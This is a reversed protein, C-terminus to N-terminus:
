VKRVLQWTSASCMSNKRNSLVSLNGTEGASTEKGTICASRYGADKLRSHLELLPGNFQASFVVVQEGSEILQECKDFAEDIKSSSGVALHEMKGTLPDEIAIADPWTNIQRLRTLQAIIATATLAKKETAQKDLWVYFYDRLKNYAERQDPTMDLYIFERTLDPLQIKVEDRRRRITQGALLKIVKEADIQVIMKNEKNSWIPDGYQYEFKKVTPFKEPAFIHLYSWMEQPRNVMPTGSLFIMFKANRCLDKVASWIATPGNANAGGKLKHVEDIYVFDWQANAIMPTTRVAEYNAILMSNSMMAWQFATERLEVSGGSLPMMRRDPSWLMIERLNSSVLSKKTLWLVNPKRNHEQEFLACLIHDAVATEFTKGLGMDNANLIGNKGSKYADIIFLIDDHQFDRAKDWAGFGECIQRITQELEALAELQNRKSLLEAAAKSLDEIKGLNGALQQELKSVDVQVQYKRNQVEKLKELYAQRITEEEKNLETIAAKVQKAEDQIGDNAKRLQQLESNIQRLPDNDGGSGFLKLEVTM